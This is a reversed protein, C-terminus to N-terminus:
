IPLEKIEKIFTELEMLNNIGELNLVLYTSQDYTLDAEYPINDKAWMANDDYITLLTNDPLTISKRSKEYGNYKLNDEKKFLEQVVPQSFAHKGVTEIFFASSALVVKNEETNDVSTLGDKQENLM